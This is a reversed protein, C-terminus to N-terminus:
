NQWDNGGGDKVGAVGRWSAPVKSGQVRIHGPVEPGNCLAGDATAVLIKVDPVRSRTGSVHLADPTNGHWTCGSWEVEAGETVRAGGGREGTNGDLTCRVFKAKVVQDLWVGGGQKGRNGTFQSREVTLRGARAYLGGGGGMGAQNGDFVCDHIQVVGRGHIALGGGADTSGGKLTIGTVQVLLGDEDIRLVPGRGDGAITVSGGAAAELTISRELAMGGKHVGPALCLRAKAPAAAIAEALANGGAAVAIGDCDAAKSGKDAKSPASTKVQTSVKAKAPNARTSRASALAPTILFTVAAM